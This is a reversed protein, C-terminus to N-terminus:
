EKILLKIGTSRPIKKINLISILDEIAELSSFGSGNGWELYVWNGPTGELKEKGTYWGKALDEKTIKEPSKKIPILEDELKFYGDWGWINERQYFKYATEGSRLMYFVDPLEKGNIFLHGHKAESRTGKQSYTINHEIKQFIFQNNTNKRKESSACAIILFLCILLCISRM